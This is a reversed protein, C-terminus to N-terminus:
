LGAAPTPTPANQSMMPAAQMLMGLRTKAMVILASNNQKGALDATKEFADMAEAAMGKAEYVNGMLFAGEALDPNVSQAELGDAEAQDLNGIRYAAMGRQVLFQARDGILRQAVAYAEAAADPRGLSAELVGVMLQNEPDEPKIEVAQRYLALAGATDGGQLAQEAQSVKDMVAVAIPDPPFLFRYALSFVLLAAAVGGVILLIRRTQRQWRETVRADLYWWWQSPAPKIVERAQALGGLRRMEGVLVGDKSLLIREVNEIRTAEPRLDVGIEKLRAVLGQMTDLLFLLTLARPGTGRLNAVILEAQTILERLDDATEAKFAPRELRSVQSTGM